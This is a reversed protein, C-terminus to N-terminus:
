TGTAQEKKKQKQFKKFLDLGFKINGDSGPRGRLFISSGAKADVGINEPKYDEKRKKLNKLPVQISIDTNGKMSYMGEVFLSLVSSQIEMRNITIERNKVQLTNKLEAFSINDFDRKKFIYDQIKKLPEFNTLSGNRLSFSIDSVITEPIVKGADSIILNSKLDATLKGDINKSTIADQGFNDFSALVSSVDVNNFNVNLAAANINGKQQVLSGNMQMSGGAHNMSANNFIYRDQLLTVYALMNTANFKNYHISNARLNVKLVSEELLKDIKKAVGAITNKNKKHSITNSQKQKLLFLFSNLNLAPTFINWDIIAQSPSTNILTLLQKGTGNMQVLTNLVNCQINEVFLDSERFSMKGKVNSLAVNRPNYMIKGDNFNIYGNLLSNTQENRLMPGKYQLFIDASGSELSLADSQILNNLDTLPFSSQLDTTLVPNELNLIELRTMKVPLGHWKAEFNNAIIRSNSDNRELGKVVENSFSGTFSAEEFDLFPTAMSTNKTSWRIDLLPDGGKLPGMIIASADLTKSLQVIGLSEAIKPPVFSRIKEYEINKTYLRLSFQPNNIGLDFNGTLNFPRNDLKIDISDFLLHNDKIRLTFDGEFPINKLFPGKRVNFGLQGVDISASTKFITEDNEESLDVDLDNVKFDHSKKRKRDDIILRVNKLKISEFQNEDDTAAKAKKESKILINKNSYGTSDTFLIITANKLTLGTLAQKKMLLNYASVRVNLEGAKLLAQGHQKYLSDTILVDKLVVGIKPFHAFLSIDVDKISLDGSIKKKLQAVIQATVKKKNASVYIAAFIYLLLFLGLLGILIKSSIKIFKKM